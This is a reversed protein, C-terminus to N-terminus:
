PPLEDFPSGPQSILSTPAPVVRAASRRQRRPQWESMPNVPTRTEPRKPGENSARHPLAARCLGRDLRECPLRKFSSGDRGRPRRPRPPRRRYERVVNLTFSDELGVNDLHPNDAHCRVTANNDAAKPRFTLVSWAMTENDRTDVQHCFSLLPCAQISGARVSWVCPCFFRYSPLVLASLVVRVCSSSFDFM